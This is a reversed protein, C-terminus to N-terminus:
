QFCFSAYLIELAEEVLYKVEIVDINRLEAMKQLSFNCFFHELIVKRHTDNLIKLLNIVENLNENDEEEKIPIDIELEDLSLCLNGSTELLMSRWACNDIGLAKAGEELSIKKGFKAMSQQIRKVKAVTELSKRSIKISGWKDRLYHLVSGRMYPFAFSSFSNNKSPNFREVAKILGLRCLQLLDEFSEPCTHQLRNAVQKALGDNLTILQNRIRYYSDDKTEKQQLSHFLSLSKAKILESKQM